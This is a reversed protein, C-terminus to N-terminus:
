LPEVAFASSSVLAYFDGSNRPLQFGLGTGPFIPKFLSCARIVMLQNPGGNDLARAPALPNNVDKCDPVTPVDVWARPDVRRLEIKTNQVCNPIIGAANCIMAKIQALTFVHGASELRLRRVAMDTGRELMVQRTMLLGSEFASLFLILFAPFILVFEITANGDDGRRFRRMARKLMQRM